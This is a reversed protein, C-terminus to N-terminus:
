LGPFGLAASKLNWLLHTGIRYGEHPIFSLFRTERIIGVKPGAVLEPFDNLKYRSHTNSYWAAGYTIDVGKRQRTWLSQIKEGFGETDFYRSTPDSITVATDFQISEFLFRPLGYAFQGFVVNGRSDIDTLIAARHSERLINRGVLGMRYGRFVSNDGFGPTPETLSLGFEGGVAWDSLVDDDDEFKLILKAFGTKSGRKLSFLVDKFIGLGLLRTRANTMWEDSMLAHEKIGLHERLQEITIRNTGVIEISEVEYSQSTHEQAYTRVNLGYVIGVLLVTIFHIKSIMTM